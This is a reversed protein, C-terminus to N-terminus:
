PTFGFCKKILPVPTNSKGNIMVLHDAVGEALVENRIAELGALDLEKESWYTHCLEKDHIHHGSKELGLIQEVFTGYLVYESFNLSRAIAAMLARSRAKNDRSAVRLNQAVHEHLLELVDRRWFMFHGVYGLRSAEQSPPLGLIKRATRTWSQTDSDTLYFDKNERFLPVTPSEAYVRPDFPRVFFSDSDLIQFVDYDKLACLSLKVMQQWIWGRVPPSSLSWRWSKLFPLRFLNMGVLDEQTVIRTRSNQLQGFLERDSRDVVIIHEIEEPVFQLISENLLQCRAFDRVYSPTVLVVRQNPSKETQNQM